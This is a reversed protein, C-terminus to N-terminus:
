FSVSMADKLVGSFFTVWTKTKANLQIIKNQLDCFIHEKKKLAIKNLM